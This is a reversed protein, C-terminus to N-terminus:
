AVGDLERNGGTETEPIQVRVEVRIAVPDGLLERRKLEILEGDSRRLWWRAAEVLRRGIPAVLKEAAGGLAVVAVDFGQPGIGTPVHMAGGLDADVAELRVPRRVQFIAGRRDSGQKRVQLASEIVVAAERCQIRNDTM